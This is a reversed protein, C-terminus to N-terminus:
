KVKNPKWNDIWKNIERSNWEENDNGELCLFVFRHFPRDKSKPITRVDEVVVGSDIMSQLTMLYEHLPYGQGDVPDKIFGQLRGKTINVENAVYHQIVRMLKNALLPSHWMEAEKLAKISDKEEDIEVEGRDMAEWLALNVDIPPADIVAVVESLKNTKLVKLLYLINM